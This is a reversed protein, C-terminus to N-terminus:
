QAQRKNRFLLDRQIFYNVVFLVSDVCIKVISENWILSKSILDVLFASIIVNIVVLGYYLLIRTAAQKKSTNPSKFVSKQNIQYNVFSSIARALVTSVYIYSAYMVDRFLAVFLTFLAIDIVFSLM